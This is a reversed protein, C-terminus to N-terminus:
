VDFTVTTMRYDKLPDDVDRRWMFSHLDRYLHTVCIARYMQSIDTTLAIHHLRFHLLVDILSSHIMPGILLTDNLSVGTLSKALADFVARVKTTMSSEKQIVHIPLYFVSDPPKELDGEPVPEAHGSQFYEDM